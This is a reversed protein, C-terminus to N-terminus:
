PLYGISGLYKADPERTRCFDDDHSSTGIIPDPHFCKYYTEWGSEVNGNAKKNWVRLYQCNECNEAPPEDQWVQKSM